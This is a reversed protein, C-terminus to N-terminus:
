RNKSITEIVAMVNEIPTHPVFYNSAGVIIGRSRKAEELCSMTQAIIEERTDLHVSHSSINGILVLKPFHEHLKRLDMEARRDIEHYSDIGSNGFLDDAVRWLNGDSNFSFISGCEHCADTVRKLRPLCLERFVKPSYMPGENSAFDGGGFIYHFGHKALFRINRVCEEAQIDLFREVLDPRLITAELWISESPIGIGAYSMRIIRENKLLDRARFEFDCMEKTLSYDTLAKEQEAVQRELDKFTLRGKSVYSHINCQESPPDFKLVCWDEEHGYGYLFTNEDIRKTPKKNYRWYTARIIDHECFLAVDIADRFSRELFEQHADKGQWLSTTERWQQIGGGVYAERGLLGSAVESSFGVHMVPIKDTKKFKFTAAVRERSNM